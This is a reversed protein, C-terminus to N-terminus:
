GCVECRQSLAGNFLSKCRKQIKLQQEMIHQLNAGSIHEQSVWLTLRGHITQNTCIFFNREQIWQTTKQIDPHWLWLHKKSDLYSYCMRWNKTCTLVSPLPWTTGTRKLYRLNKKNYLNLNKSTTIDLTVMHPGQIGDVPSAAMIEQVQGKSSTSINLHPFIVSLEPQNSTKHGSWITIM